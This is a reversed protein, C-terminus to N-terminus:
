DVSVMLLHREQRDMGMWEPGPSSAAALQVRGDSVTGPDYALLRSRAYVVPRESQAIARFHGVPDDPLEAPEVIEPEAPENEVLVDVTNHALPGNIFYRHPKGIAVYGVDPLLEEGAGWLILQLRDDHFHGGRIRPCFHLHAQMGDPGRGGGLAFHGYANLEINAPEADPPTEARGAGWSTDHVCVRNGDPYTMMETIQMARRYVPMELPDDGGALSIGYREDTYGAPDHYGRLMRAAIALRWTVLGHYTLTGEYEMGDFHYSVRIMERMFHVAQHVVDPDNLVRGLHIMRQYLTPNLNWIQGGNDAHATVAFDLAPRFLGEEIRRRLEVGEPALEEWAAADYTLDYAFVLDQPIEYMFLDTWRGYLWDSWPRPPGITWERWYHKGGRKFVPWHPYVEAFHSMIQVARRALAEDRSTHYHEALARAAAAMEHHRRYRITAAIGVPGPKVGSLEYTVTEGLLNSGSVQMDTPLTDATIAAGCDPCDIQEPRDLSYDLTQCGCEPCVLKPTLGHRPQILREIQDEGLAMAQQVLEATREDDQDLRYDSVMHPVAPHEILSSPLPAAWTAPLSCALALVAALATRVTM